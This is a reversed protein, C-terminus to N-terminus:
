KDDKNIVRVNWAFPSFIAKVVLCIIIGVVASGFSGTGIWFWFFVIIFGLGWVLEKRIKKWDEENITNIAPEEIKSNEEDTIKINFKKNNTICDNIENENPPIINFKGVGRTNVIELIKLAEKSQKIKDTENNKLIDLVGQVKRIDMNELVEKIELLGQARKIEHIDM